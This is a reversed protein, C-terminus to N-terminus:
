NLFDFWKETLNTNRLLLKLITHQKVNLTMICVVKYILLGTNKKDVQSNKIQKNTLNTAVNKEALKVSEKQLFLYITIFNWFLIGGYGFCM